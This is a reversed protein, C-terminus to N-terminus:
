NKPPTVRKRLTDLSRAFARSRQEAARRDVLIDRVTDVVKAPDFPKTFFNEIRADNVARIALDLDPFATILIRPVEPALRRAESLLELGNMGPMKYDTVVLDVPERGLIEIATAGGDATLCRLDPLSGEFLERLSDRIDAEDDVVLIVQPRPTLRPESPDPDPVPVGGPTATM